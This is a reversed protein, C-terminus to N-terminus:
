EYALVERVTVRSASRAPLFSALASLLFVVVLWTVAGGTSFTYSLPAQLISTGVQDSLVRSLPYAILTGILWSLLGILIGEVIVIQLIAGNSAGIARMVGIERTRELVNLSMTGMLGIAGVVALLVAMVLLFGVLVDFRASIQSKETASTMTSGVNLGLDTFHKELAKEVQSEYAADHRQTQVFVIGARGSGGMVQGYYDLNMYAMPVPPTGSMIGVVRWTTEKSNISLRIEDGVKIDPENKLLMTNVVIANEDTPVLWRGAVVKPQVFSSDARPAYIFMTDSETDDARLRRASGGQWGEAATVGPVKLAEQELQDIRYGRQFSVYVDYDVYDFMDDMTTLLSARVTFVAIFIGGGLTLTMLTLALRGKRRFTNRLSLLLPRSLGRIHELLRDILGKGFGGGSIGYDSMAVRASVRV